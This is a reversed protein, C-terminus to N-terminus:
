KNKWKFWNDISTKPPNHGTVARFERRAKDMENRAQKYLSKIFWWFFVYILVSCVIVCIIEQINIM